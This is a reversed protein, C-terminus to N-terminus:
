IKTLRGENDGIDAWDYCDCADRFPPRLWWLVITPFAAEAHKGAILDRALCITEFFSISQLM